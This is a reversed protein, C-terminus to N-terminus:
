EVDPEPAHRAIVLRAGEELISCRTRKQQKALESVRAYDAAALPVTVAYRRTGDLRTIGQLGGKRCRKWSSWRSTTVTM